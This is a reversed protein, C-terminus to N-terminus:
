GAALKKIVEALISSYAALARSQASVMDAYTSGNVSEIIHTSQIDHVPKGQRDLVTWLVILELDGGLRGEFRIIDVRISYDIAVPEMSTDSLVKDTGLLFSLNEAIVRGIDEEIKGAWRHYEALQLENNGSRTVIQPKRLYKPLSVPFVGITIDQSITSPNEAEQGSFAMPSLVYFRASQSRGACGTLSLMTICALSLFVAGAAIRKIM